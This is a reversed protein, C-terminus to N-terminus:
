TTGLLGLSRKVVSGPHDGEAVQHPDRLLRPGLGGGGNELVRHDALGLAFSPTEERGFGHVRAVHNEDFFGRQTPDEHNESVLLQSSPDERDPGRHVM